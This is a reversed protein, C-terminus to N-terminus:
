MELEVVFKWWPGAIESECGIGNGRENVLANEGDEARREGLLCRPRRETKDPEIWDRGVM